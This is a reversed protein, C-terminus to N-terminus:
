SPDVLGLAAADSVTFLESWGEGVSDRLMKESDASTRTLPSSVVTGASSSTVVVYLERDLSHGAVHPSTRALRSVPMSFHVRGNVSHLGFREALADLVFGIRTPIRALYDAAESPTIAGSFELSAIAGQITNSVRKQM